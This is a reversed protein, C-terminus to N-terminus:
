EAARAPSPPALPLTVRFFSTGDERFVVALTGGMREAMARSIPLGLGAGRDLPARTGRTFKAFIDEAEEATVGGGHRLPHATRQRDHEALIAGAEEPHG